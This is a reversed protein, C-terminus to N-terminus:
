KADHQMVHIEHATVCPDTCPSLSTRWLDEAQRRQLVTGRRESRRGRYYARDIAQVLMHLEDDRRKTRAQQRIHGRRTREKEKPRVINIINHISCAQREGKGARGSGETACRCSTEGEGTAGETGHGPEHRNQEYTRPIPTAMYAHMEKGGVRVGRHIDTIGTNAKHAAPM